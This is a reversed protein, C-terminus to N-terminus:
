EDDYAIALLETAVRRREKNISTIFFLRSDWSIRMKTTVAPADATHVKFSKVDEYVRQDSDFNENGAVDEIEAWCTKYTAWTSADVSGYDDRVSTPQQIIISDRYAM